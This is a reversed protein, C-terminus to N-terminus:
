FVTKLNQLLKFISVCYSGADVVGLRVGLLFSFLHTYLVQVHTNVLAHNVMPLLHFCGAAAAAALDSRDHGVRHSGMSLLGGPEGM